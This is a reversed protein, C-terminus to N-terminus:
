LPPRHVSEEANQVRLNSALMVVKYQITDFDSSARNSDVICGHLFVYKGLNQLYSTIYQGGKHNQCWPSLKSFVLLRCKIVKQMSELAAGRRVSSYSKTNIGRFKSHIVLISVFSVQNMSGPKSRNIDMRQLVCDIRSTMAKGFVPEPVSRRKLLGPAM